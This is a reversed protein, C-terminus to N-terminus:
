HKQMHMNNDFANREGLMGDMWMFEDLYGNIISYCGIRENM